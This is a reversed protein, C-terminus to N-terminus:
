IQVKLKVQFEEKVFRNSLNQKGLRESNKNIINYLNRMENLALFHHRSFRPFYSTLDSSHPMMASQRILFVQYFLGTGALRIPLHAFSSHKVSKFLCCCDFPSFLFLIFLLISNVGVPTLM